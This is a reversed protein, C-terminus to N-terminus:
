LADPGAGAAGRRDTAERGGRGASEGRIGEEDRGPM